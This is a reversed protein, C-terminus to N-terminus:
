KHMQISYQYMKSRFQTSYYFAQFCHHCLFFSFLFLETHNHSFYFHCLINAWVHIILPIFCQKYKQVQWWGPDRTLAQPNPEATNTTNTTDFSVPHTKLPGTSSVAHVPSLFLSWPENSESLSVRDLAQEALETMFCLKNPFCYQKAYCLMQTNQSHKLFYGTNGHFCCVHIKHIFTNMSQM